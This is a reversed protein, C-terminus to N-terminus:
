FFSFLLIGYFFFFYPVSFFISVKKILIWLIFLSEYFVRLTTILNAFELLQLSLRTPYLPKFWHSLSFEWLQSPQAWLNIPFFRRWAKQNLFFDNNTLITSTNWKNYSKLQRLFNKREKLLFFYRSRAVMKKLKMQFLFFCHQM